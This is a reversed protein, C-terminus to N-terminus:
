AGQAREGRGAPRQALAIGALVAVGAGIQVVTMAEGFILWGLLAAFVPATLMALSTFSAKLRGMAFMFATQGAINVLLTFAIIVLWADATQPEITEGLVTAMLFMVPCALTHNFTIVQLTTFYSRLYTMLVIWVGLFVGSGLALIDGLRIASLDTTGLGVLAYTGALALATGAVFRRTIRDSFAIWAAIAAFIPHVNSLLAANAISTYMVSAQWLALNFALGVGAVMLLALALPPAASPVIPARSRRQLVIYVGWFVIAALGLRWAGTAVPGVESFRV